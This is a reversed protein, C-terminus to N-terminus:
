DAYSTERITLCGPVTRGVLRIWKKTTLSIGAVCRHDHKYSNALCVIRDLSM